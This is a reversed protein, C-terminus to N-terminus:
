PDSRSAKKWETFFEDFTTYRKNRDPDAATVAVQYSENNLQWNSFSCPLFQNNRYRQRIEEDSFFGFFEFILASLTFINTKEDIVSGQIYEEPAKLRKTGFWDM